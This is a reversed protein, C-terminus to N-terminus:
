KLMKQMLKFFTAFVHKNEFIKHKVLVGLIENEIETIYVENGDTPM